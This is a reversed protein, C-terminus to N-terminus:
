ISGLSQSTDGRPPTSHAAHVSNPETPKLIIAGAGVVSYEGIEIHDRITSNVGLFSGRGVRVRGSVVVHSTIFVDDEISSHHGIHNGSWMTVNDGITVFPQITNDELIFCNTGIVVHELVTRHPSVYSVTGYGLNRVWGLKDRRSTNMRSYGLAVFVDTRHPDFEEVLRSAPIVPRDCFTDAALRDDDVVFADVRRDFDRRFYYAALEAADDAGFILFGRGGVEFVM